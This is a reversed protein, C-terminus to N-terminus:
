KQKNHERRGVSALRTRRAYITKSYNSMRWNFFDGKRKLMEIIPGSINGSSHAYIRVKNYHNQKNLANQLAGHLNLDSEDPDNFISPRYESPDKKAEKLAETLKTKLQDGWNPVNKDYVIFRIHKLDFPVDDPSPATLIVTKGRAHALGLEYFVNPNKTTLDALLIDATKIHTWIDKMVECPRYIDDARQASYGADKISPKYIGTYYVDFWSGFPMIVFCLPESNDKGTKLHAHQINDGSSYANNYDSHPHIPFLLDGTLSVNGLKEAIQGAELSQYALKTNSSM